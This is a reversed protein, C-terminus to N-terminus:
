LSKIFQEVSLDGPFDFHTIKTIKDADDITSGIVLHWLQYKSYDPYQEKIASTFSLVKEHTRMADAKYAARLKEKLEKVLIERSIERGKVKLQEEHIGM